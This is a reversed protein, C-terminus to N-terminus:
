SAKPKVALRRSRAGSRRKLAPGATTIPAPPAERAMRAPSRSSPAGSIVSILRLWPRASAKAASNPPGIRTTGHSPRACASSPAAIRTLVVLWPMTPSAGSSRGSSASGIRASTISM